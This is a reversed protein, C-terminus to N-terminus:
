DGESSDEESEFGFDIIIETKLNGDVKLAQEYMGTLKTLQDLAKLANGRDGCERADTYVDLLRIMMDNRMSPLQEAMDAAIVERAEKIFRDCACQGKYVRGLGYEDNTLKDAIISRTAGNLLDNVIQKIALQKRAREPKWGKPRRGM